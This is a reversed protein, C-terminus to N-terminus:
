RRRRSRPALRPPPLAHSRLAPCRAPCFPSFLRARARCACLGVDGENGVYFFIMGTSDNRWHDAFTLYRQQYTLAGTPTGAWSFHDIPQEFWRTTCNASGPTSGRPPAAPPAVGPLRRHQAGYLAHRTALEVAAVGTLAGLLLTALM